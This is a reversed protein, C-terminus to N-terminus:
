CRPGPTNVSGASSLAIKIYDVPFRELYSLSSYGTGFDDLITRVGLDQIEELTAATALADRM